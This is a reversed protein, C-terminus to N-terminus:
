AGVHNMALNLKLVGVSFSLDNQAYNLSEYVYSCHQM